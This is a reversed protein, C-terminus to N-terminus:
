FKQDMNNYGREARMVVKGALMNVLMSFGSFGLDFNTPEDKSYFWLTSKTDCYNSSYKILNYM